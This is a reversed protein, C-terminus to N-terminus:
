YLKLGTTCLGLNWWFLQAWALGKQLLESLELINVHLSGQHLSKKVSTAPRFTMGLLKMLFPEMVSSKRCPDQATAKKSNDLFERRSIKAFCKRVFDCAELRYTVVKNFIVHKVFIYLVLKWSELHNLTHLLSYNYERASESALAFVSIGMSLNGLPRKGPNKWNRISFFSNARFIFFKYSKEYEKICILSRVLNGILVLCVKSPM